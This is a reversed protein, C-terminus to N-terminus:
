FRSAIMSLAWGFALLALAVYGLTVGASAISRGRQRNRWIQGRAVYGAIVAAVPIAIFWSPVSRGMFGVSIGVVFYGAALV